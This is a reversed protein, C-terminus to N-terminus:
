SQVHLCDFLLMVVSEDLGGPTRGRACARLCEGGMLGDM